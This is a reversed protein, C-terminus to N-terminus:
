LCGACIHIEGLVFSCFDEFSDHRCDKKIMVSLADILDLGASKRRQVGYVVALLHKCLSRIAHSVLAVGQLRAPGEETSQM